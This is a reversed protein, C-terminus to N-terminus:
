RGFVIEGEVVVDGESLEEEVGGGGRGIRRRTEVMREIAACEGVAPKAGPSREGM